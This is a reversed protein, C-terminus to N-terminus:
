GQYSNRTTATVFFDGIPCNFAAFVWHRVPRSLLIELESDALGAEGSAITSSGAEGRGLTVLAQLAIGPEEYGGSNIPHSESFYHHFHLNM